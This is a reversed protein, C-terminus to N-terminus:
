FSYRAALQLQYSSEANAAGYRRLTRDFRFISQSVNPPGATQGVHQLVNVNPTRVLGWRSRLLNLVNFVDLQLSLRHGWTSPLAQRVSLQSTHIWPAACSNREVIRGRQRRLCATGQIFREFAAQQTAVDQPTGSFRIETTDAANRPVYIPDNANTGDANLDGLGSATSDFYTYRVGSEGTYIASIDTPWRTWPAAYTAALVVRHPLNFSSVTPSLDDQSGAIARASAWHSLVSNGGPNETLSQVDRMVSYTYAARAEIRTSFRKTLQGTLSWSHNRSHNRLDIVEPLSDPVVAAPSAAGTATLTGYMVRGNRDVGQPGRLNVNVLLFDSRNKTYTGEVTAVVDWPLQRDLALSGRVAEGMRLSRDVLDVAGSTYQRGNACANPQFAADVTFDPVAKAGGSADCRLTRIGTGYQRLPSRLWGLPPRGAFLGVGGRIRTSGGPWPEWSFGFRPSWTVRPKPFDSTRRGFVSDIAANYAPRADFSLLDARLGASVTLGHGPRWEDNTYAGLQIGDLSKSAAGFDRAVDYRSAKGLELAELTSFMWRGYGGPITHGYYRFWENRIGLSLAHQQHVQFSVHDAIELSANVIKTGQGQDPPGAVLTATGAGSANPVSVVVVTPAFTYRTAGNPIVSHGILLENFVRGAPQTFLQLATSHKTLRLAYSNSSLSFRNTSSRAFVTREVDSYTHRLALRSRWEPLAIDVRGFVAAVPNVVTVQGGSGADLGYSGLIRVFRAVDSELVPVPPAADISQGVYPGIAPEAHHQFESAIFFHARNRVIPGSLTIGFQQREYPASRLFETNRALQENRAYGFVSGRLENTGSKTVANVLLGSFDGYRADYPTLLVQYEKLADMPMSKGGRTGGMVSNGGLQRDSVGDILYSNLRFTAGSSVVGFRTSVQPTLRVFDYMDRNLSPLRHLLSDSITIAGGAHARPVDRGRETIRVGSLTRVAPELVVDLSRSEGLVLYISDRSTPAFGLRRVSVRYPGGVELGPAFFRGNRTTTNVAYGSARNLVEVRAEDVRDGSAARVTGVISSTSVGQARLSPRASLALVSTVLAGAIATTQRLLRCLTPRLWAYV